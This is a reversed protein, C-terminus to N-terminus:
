PAETHCMMSKPVLHLTPRSHTQHHSLKHGYRQPILKLGTQRTHLRELQHTVCSQQESPLSSPASDSNVRNLVDRRLCFMPTVGRDSPLFQSGKPIQPRMATTHTHVSTYANMYSHIDKHKSTSYTHAHTHAHTRKHTNKDKYRHTRFEISYTHTQMGITISTHTHTHTHPSVHQIGM